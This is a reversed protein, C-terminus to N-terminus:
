LAAKSFSTVLTASLMQPDFNELHEGVLPRALLWASAVSVPAVDRLPQLLPHIRYSDLAQATSSDFNVRELVLNEARRNVGLFIYSGIRARPHGNTEIRIRERRTKLTSRSVDASLAVVSHRDLTVAADKALVAGEHDVVVLGDSILGWGSQSLCYALSSAGCRPDGVIVVANGQFGVAAGAMVRFGQAGYWQAQAWEGIRDRVEEYIQFDHAMVTISHHTVRISGLRPIGLTVHTETREYHALPDHSPAPSELFEFAPIEPWTM